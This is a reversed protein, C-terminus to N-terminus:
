LTSPIKNDKKENNIINDQSDLFVLIDYYQRINQVYKVTEWGRAYGYKTKKYYKSRSLKLLYPELSQYDSIIKGDSKAMEIADLIHGYGINYAAIAYWIKEKQNIQDPIKDLMIRLYKAGGYISEKPNTRDNIKMDLSTNKTLMMIGKVGTYSVADKKWRSEQYGISALLKWDHNFKKSYNKFYFEYLPFINALDNIFNKTGVFNYKTDNIQNNQKIYKLKNKKLLDTFFYSIKEGLDNTSNNPLAWNNAVESGIKYAIDIESFYKRYFSLEDSTLITYQIEGKILSQVLEDINRDNAVNYKVESHSIFNNISKILKPSDIITINNGKLESITNPKKHYNKNFVLNFEVKNHSYILHADNIIGMDALIDIKRENLQETAFSANNVTIVKLKINLYNSLEQMLDYSFGMKQNKIEYYTTPGTRTGIIIEGNEVIRKYDNEYFPTYYKTIGIVVFILITIYIIRLLFNIM